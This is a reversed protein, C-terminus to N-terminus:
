PSASGAAASDVGALPTYYLGFDSFFTSYYIISLHNKNASYIIIIILFILSEALVKM